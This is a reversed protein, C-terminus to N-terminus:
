WTGPPAIPFGPSGWTPDPMPIIPPPPKPDTPLTVPTPTPDAPPLTIGGGDPNDRSELMMLSPKFKM